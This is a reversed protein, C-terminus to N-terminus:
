RRSLAIRIIDDRNISRGDAANWTAIKAVQDRPIDLLNIQRALLAVTEIPIPIPRGSRGFWRAEPMVLIIKGDPTRAVDSVYGLTRDDYDLIALGILDGVRVKQPFRANMRQEPTRKEAEPAQQGQGHAGGAPGAGHAPAIAIALALLSIALHSM